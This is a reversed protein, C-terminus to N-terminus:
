AAARDGPCYNNVLGLQSRGVFQQLAHRLRGFPRALATGIAPSISSKRNRITM